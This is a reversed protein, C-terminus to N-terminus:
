DNTEEQSQFHPLLNGNADTFGAQHLFKRAARSDGSLARDLLSPADLADALDTLANVPVACCSGQGSFGAETDVLYRLVWALGHRVSFGGHWPSLTSGEHFEDILRQARTSATM